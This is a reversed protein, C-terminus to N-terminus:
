ADAAASTAETMQREAQRDCEVCFVACEGGSQQTWGVYLAVHVLFQRSALMTSQLYGFFLSNSWSM